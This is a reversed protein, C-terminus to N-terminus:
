TRRSKGEDDDIQVIGPERERLLATVEEDFAARGLLLRKLAGMDLAGDNQRGYQRLIRQINENGERRAIQIAMEADNGSSLLGGRLFLQVLGAGIFDHEGGADPASPDSVANRPRRRHFEEPVVASQDTLLELVQTDLEIFEAEMLVGLEDTFRNLLQLRHGLAVEQDDGELTSIAADEAGTKQLLFEL